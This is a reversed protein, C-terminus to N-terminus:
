RSSRRVGARLSSGTALKEAIDLLSRLAQNVADSNPFAVAVSPDLVVVNSKAKVREYYRGRELENFDSRKYEPRLEDPRVKGKKM